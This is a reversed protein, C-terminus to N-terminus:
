MILPREARSLLHGLRVLADPDAVALARHVYRQPITALRDEVSALLLDVPIEVFVPGPRGTLATRIATTLVEPIQRTEAVTFAGKTIPRLLAVQEMEQLAGLGRLGLPAAGGLLVM